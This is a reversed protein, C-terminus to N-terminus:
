DFGNHSTTGQRIRRRLSHVTTGIDDFDRQRRIPRRTTTASNDRRRRTPQRRHQRVGNNFGNNFFHQHLRQGFGNNFVNGFGNNGTTANHRQPLTTFGRGTNFGNNFVFCNHFGFGNHIGFGNNFGGNVGGIGVWVLPVNPRVGADVNAKSDGGALRAHRPSRSCPQRRDLAIGLLTCTRRPFPARWYPAFRIISVNPTTAHRVRDCPAEPLRLGVLGEPVAKLNSRRTEPRDPHLLTLTAV